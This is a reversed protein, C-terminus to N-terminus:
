NSEKKKPNVKLYEVDESPFYTNKSNVTVEFSYVKFEPKSKYEGMFGRLIIMSGVNVEEMLFDVDVCGEFKASYYKNSGVEKAWIDALTSSRKTKRLVIVSRTETIKTKIM